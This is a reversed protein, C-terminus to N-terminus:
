LNYFNSPRLSLTASREHCPANRGFGTLKTLGMVRIKTHRAASM